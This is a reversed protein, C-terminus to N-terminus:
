NFHEWCDECVSADSSNNHLDNESVKHSGIDCWVGNIVVENEPFHDHKVDLKIALMGTDMLMQQLVNLKM